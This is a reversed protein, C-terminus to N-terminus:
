WSVGTLYSCRPATLTWSLPAILRLATANTQLMSRAEAPGGTVGAADSINVSGAADIAGAPLM